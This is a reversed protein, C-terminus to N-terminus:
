PRFRSASQLSEVAEAASRHGQGGAGAGGEALRARAAASGRGRGAEGPRGADVAAVDEVEFGVSAQPVPRDAPWEPTGFWAQAAQAPPWVGFHKSGEIKESHLYGDGDAAALPLGLAEVYLRRSEAPRETIVAFSSIFRVRM